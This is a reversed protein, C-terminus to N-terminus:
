NTDYAVRTVDYAVGEVDYAVLEVDYAVRTVDFSFSAVPSARSTKYTKLYAVSTVDCALSSRRSCRKLM